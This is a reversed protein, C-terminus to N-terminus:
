PRHKAGSKRQYFYRARDCSVCRDCLFQRLIEPTEDTSGDDVFIIEYNSYTQRLVSDVAVISERARNYSPIVVSVFPRKKESAECRPSANSSNAMISTHQITTLSLQFLDM